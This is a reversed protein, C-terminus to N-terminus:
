LKEKFISLDPFSLGDGLRQEKNELNSAFKEINEQQIQLVRKRFEMKREDESISASYPPIKEVFRIMELDLLTKMWSYRAWTEQFRSVDLWKLAALLIGLGGLASLIMPFLVSNLDTKSLFVFIGAGFLLVSYVTLSIVFRRKWMFNHEKNEKAKLEVIHYTEKYKELFFDNEPSDVSNAKEPYDAGGTNRNWISSWHTLITLNNEERRRCMM